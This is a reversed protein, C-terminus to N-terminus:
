PTRAIYIHRSTDLFVDPRQTIGLPHSEDTLVDLADRDREQLHEGFRERIGRLHGLVVQRGERQLPPDLRVHAVRDVVVEFGASKLMAPYGASPTSQPLGARMDALWASDVAALRDIFGPHGPDAGDLLFRPPDGHEVLVLVGHPNLTRRVLRLMAAEDGIHHLVMSMWILDAQGLDEFGDPLDVPRTTIRNSLGAADARAAARQLLEEAGDAAVVTASAFQRALECAAVGPGSGVDLIRRVEVGDHRYIEAVTQATERILPLLVEAELQLQAAMATWDLDAAHHRHGSHEM